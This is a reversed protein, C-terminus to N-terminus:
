TTAPKPRVLLKEFGRGVHSNARVPEIVQYEPMARLLEEIAIRVEMRAIPAGICQHIGTGFSLHRHEPPRSINFTEPEDWYREDRNASAIICVLTSGAPITTRYIVVDELVLRTLTQVPSELRLSEEIANPIGSPDDVLKARQEPYKDLLYLTSSITDQATGSSAVVLHAVIGLIEEDTLPKGNLESGLLVSIIDDRGELSKGRRSQIKDLLYTGINKGATIAEEPPTPDESVRRFVPKMFSLLKPRDEDPLDFMKVLVLTPLQWALDETIDCIELEALEGALRKVEDRLIEDFRTRLNKPGFWPQILQRMADHSPGDLEDMNGPALLADTKDIDVGERNSFREGDRLVMQVDEYRSVAWFDHEKNYYIPCEDRLWKYVPFPNRHTEETFPNYEM